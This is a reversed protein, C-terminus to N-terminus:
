TSFYQFQRMIEIPKTVPRLVAIYDDILQINRQM